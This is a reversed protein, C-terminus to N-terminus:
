GGAKAKRPPILAALCWCIVAVVAAAHFADASALVTAQKRIATSLLTLAADTTAGAGAVRSKLAATYLQLRAATDPGLATVHLGLLNSHIEERRALYTQMFSVGAEGGMLRSTQMFSGVTVAQEPAISSTILVVLSTLAFSQGVAQLVQSYLFDPTAWVGTLQGAMMCAVAILATGAGLTWRPDIRALVFALPAMLLIQPLAIWLLVHGIELSRYGQVVTLFNPIVYATSLIFFRYGALLAFLVLFPLQALTAFRIVPARATVEHVVFCVLALVGFVSLGVILGSSMWDLRKGQDLVVYLFSFGVWALLLGTWDSHRLKEWDVPDRKMAVTLCLFMVPLVLCYQWFIWHWSFNNLYFGEISTGINQSFESNVAYVAIGFLTLNRPVSRVIFMVTLPIFSGSGLGALGYAVLFADLNPSLPALLSGTFFLVIGLLLLRRTGFIAALYPCSIGSVLQGIGFVTTIWAGEDFGVGLAGRLDALGASTVRTALVAMMSGLLVGFLGLYLRWGQLPGSAPATAAPAEMMRSMM